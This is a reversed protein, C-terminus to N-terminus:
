RAQVPAAPRDRRDAGHSVGHRRGGRGARDPEQERAPLQRGPGTVPVGTTPIASLYFLSLMLIACEPLRTAHVPGLTLSLGVLLLGVPVARDIWPALSSAGLAHFLRRVARDRRALYGAASWHRSRCM